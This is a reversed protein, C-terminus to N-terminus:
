LWVELKTINWYSRTSGGNTITLETPSTQRIESVELLTREKQLGQDEGTYEAELYHLLVKV